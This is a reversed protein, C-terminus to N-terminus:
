DVEVFHTGNDDRVLRANQGLLIDEVMTKMGDYYCEEEKGGVGNKIHGYHTDLLNCATQIEYVTM